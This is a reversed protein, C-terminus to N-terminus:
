VREHLAQDPRHPAFKEVMDQEPIPTIQFPLKGLELNLAIRCAVVRRQLPLRRRVECTSVRRGGGVQISHTPRRM